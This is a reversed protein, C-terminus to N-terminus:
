PAITHVHYASHVSSAGTFSSIIKSSRRQGLWREAVLEAAHFGQSGRQRRFRAIGEPNRKATEGSLENALAAVDKEPLLSPRWLRQM